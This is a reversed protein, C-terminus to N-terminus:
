KFSANIEAKPSAVKSQEFVFFRKRLRLLREEFIWVM